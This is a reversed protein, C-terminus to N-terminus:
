RSAHRASPPLGCDIQTSIVWVLNMLIEKVLRPGCSSIGLSTTTVARGLTWSVSINPFINGSSCVWGKLTVLQLMIRVVGCLLVDQIHSIRAVNLKALLQTIDKLIVLRKFHSIASPGHM